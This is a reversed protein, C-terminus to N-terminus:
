EKVKYYGPSTFSVRDSNTDAYRRQFAGKMSGDKEEGRLFVTEGKQNTQMTEWVLTGDEQRNVSYNSPAFGQSALYISSVTDKKFVVKDFQPYSTLAGLDAKFEVIWATGDLGELYDTQPEEQIQIIVPAESQAIRKARQYSITAVAAGSLAVVLSFSVAPVLMRKREQRQEARQRREIEEKVAEVFAPSGLLGQGSLKRSLEQTEQQTVQALSQAYDKKEPFARGLFDLAERIEASIDVILQGAVEKLTDQRTPDGLCTYFLESSFTYAQSGSVLGARAPARHIFNILSLLYAEKEVVVSKFRERFVHGKRAYRGNFYKTYSSNIDHMVMSITAGEKLEILLSLSGPLLAFSFLKFGYQERYKKLLELYMRYDERDLFINEGLNGRATIYYLCNELYM